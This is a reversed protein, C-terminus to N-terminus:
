GLLKLESIRVTSGETPPATFWLLVHRYKTSGAGLKVTESGDTDTGVGTVDKLHAWRTDLVDPPLDEDDTAYIEIKFGPTKTKLDIERIGELKPLAVTLGAGIQQSGAPVTIPFSTNPDGDFAKTPDGAATDRKFPDYLAGADDALDIPVPETETKTTSTKTTSTRTDATSDSKSTDTSTSTSSSSSSSSSSSDSSSTSPTSPTSPIDPISSTSPVKTTGTDTPPTTTATDGPFATSPESTTAGADPVATSPPAVQSADAPAQALQTPTNPATTDDQLAAYSAAVAGGVLVTTLALVTATARKGPLAVRRGGPQAEGCNLCWDQGEELPASCKPCTRTEPPAPPAPAETAAGEPTKETDTSRLLLTM